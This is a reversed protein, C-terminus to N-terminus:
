RTESKDRGGVNAADRDVGVGHLVFLGSEVPAGGPPSDPRYTLWMRGINPTGSGYSPGSGCLAAHMIERVVDLAV